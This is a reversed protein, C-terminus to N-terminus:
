PHNEWGGLQQGIRWAGESQSLILRGGEGTDDRVRRWFNLVVDGSALVDEVVFECLEMSYGGGRSRAARRFKEHDDNSIAQYCNANYLWSTVKDNPMRGRILASSDLRPQDFLNTIIFDALCEPLVWQGTDHEVVICGRVYNSQCTFYHLNSLVM